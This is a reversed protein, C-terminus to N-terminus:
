LYRERYSLVASAIGSGKSDMLDRKYQDRKDIYRVYNTGPELVLPGGTFGSMANSASRASWDHKLISLRESDFSLSDGSELTDSSRMWQEENKVYAPYVADASDSQSVIINRVYIRYEAGVAGGEISLRGLFGFVTSLMQGHVTIWGPAASKSSEAVLTLNPVMVYGWDQRESVTNMVVYCTGGSVHEIWYDLSVTYYKGAQIYVDPAYNIEYVSTGYKSAMICQRGPEFPDPVVFLGRTAYAGAGNQGDWWDAISDGHGYRQLNANKSLRLQPYTVNVATGLNLFPFPYFSADAYQAATIEYVGAGDINFSGNTGDHVIYIRLSTVGALETPGIKVFGHEWDGSGAVSLACSKITGLNTYANVSRTGGSGCKVHCAVLYYKSTSCVSMLNSLNRLTFQGAASRTAKISKTGYVYTSADDSATANAAIWKAYNDSANADMNELLNQVPFDNIKVNLPSAVSGAYVIAKQQLANLTVAETTVTTKEAYPKVCKLQMSFDCTRSVLPIGTMKVTLGGQYRCTWYRDTQDQFIVQFSGGRGSLRLMSRLGDINTVLQAHTDGIIQGQLTIVRSGYSKTFDFDGDRGAVQVSVDVAPPPPNSVSRVIVGYTHLDVGDIKVWATAGSLRAPTAM